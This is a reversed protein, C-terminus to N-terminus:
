DGRLSVEPFISACIRASEVLAGTKNTNRWRASATAIFSPGFIARRSIPFRIKRRAIAHCRLRIRSCASSWGSSGRIRGRMAWRPSGCRGISGRSIRSSSGPMRDLAGPKWKFEYPKWEIGDDSGEIIIEPREKTMVRFLGYGNM